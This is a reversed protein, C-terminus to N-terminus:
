LQDVAERSWPQNPDRLSRYCYTIAGIHVGGFRSSDKPLKTQSWAVSAAALSGAVAKGFERRTLMVNRQILVSSAGPSGDSITRPGRRESHLQHRAAGFDRPGQLVPVRLLAADQVGWYRDM